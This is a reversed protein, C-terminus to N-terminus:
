EVEGGANGLLWRELWALAAARMNHSEFHAHEERLMKWAEPKGHAQYATKLHADLKDLGRPPTLPDLDGCLSLFPRPAILQAIRATDFHQLLGPVYYYVGHEDLGRAAILEEYDTLCCLEVVVRVREDLAAAWWSLTSGMSIGLAAVRQADLDARSAAYDLARLTDYVMAGFLVQGRWLMEKFLASESRQHREGFNMQDICLAAIGRKALAEAWPPDVLYVNGEVLEQKGLRYFGGHSHNFLVLPYPASGSLPLSLLAPVPERGNLDLLLRELRYSPQQEVGILRAGVPGGRPPLEGLLSYLRQRAESPSM